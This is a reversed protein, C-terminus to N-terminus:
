FVRSRKVSKMDAIRHPAIRRWLICTMPWKLATQCLACKTLRGPSNRAVAARLAANLADEIQPRTYLQSLQTHGTLIKIGQEKESDEATGDAFIVLAVSASVANLFDSTKGYEKNIEKAGSAFAQKIASFVSM